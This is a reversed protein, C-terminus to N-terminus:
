HVRMVRAHVARAALIGAAADQFLVREKVNVGLQRAALEHREPHPKGITVAESPVLVAPCPIHAAQLAYRPRRAPLSFEREAASELRMYLKSGLPRTKGVDPKAGRPERV